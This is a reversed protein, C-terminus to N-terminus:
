NKTMKKTSVEKKIVPAGYVEKEADALLQALETSKYPNIDNIDSHSQKKSLKSSSRASNAIRMQSNGSRNSVGSAPRYKASVARVGSRSVSSKSM